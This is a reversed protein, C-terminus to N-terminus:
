KTIPVEQVRAQTHVKDRYILYFHSHVWVMGLLGTAGSLPM